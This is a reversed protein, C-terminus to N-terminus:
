PHRRRHTEPAFGNTIILKDLTVSVDGGTDLVRGTGGGSITASNGRWTITLNEDITFNGASRPSLWPRGM